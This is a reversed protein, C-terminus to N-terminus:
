RTLRGGRLRKRRNRWCGVTISCAASVAEPTDSVPKEIVPMVMIMVPVLVKLHQM